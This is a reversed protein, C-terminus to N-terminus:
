MDVTLKQSQSEIIFFLKYILLVFICFQFFRCKDIKKEYNIYVYRVSTIKDNSIWALRQGHANYLTVIYSSREGSGTDSASQHATHRWWQGTDQTCPMAAVSLSVPSRRSSSGAAPVPRGCQRGACAWYWGSTKKVREDSAVNHGHWWCRPRIALSALTWKNNERYCKLIWRM